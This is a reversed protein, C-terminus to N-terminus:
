LCHCLVVVHLRANINL